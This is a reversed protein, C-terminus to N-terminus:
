LTPKVMRSIVKWSREGVEHKYPHKVARQVVKGRRECVEGKSIGEILGQVVKRRGESVQGYVIFLKLKFMRQVVEGRGDCVQCQHFTIGTVM